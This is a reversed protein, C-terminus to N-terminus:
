RCGRSCSVLSLDVDAAVEAEWEARHAMYKGRESPLGRTCSAGDFMNHTISIVQRDGVTVYFKYLYAGPAHVNMAVHGDDVANQFSLPFEVKEKNPARKATTSALTVGDGGPLKIAWSEKFMRTHYHIDFLPLGSSDRIERCSPKKFKRGSATFLTTNDSADLITYDKSSRQGEPRDAIPKLLITREFEAIFEKRLAIPHRPTEVAQTNM